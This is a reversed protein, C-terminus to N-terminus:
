SRPARQKEFFEQFSSAVSCAQLGLALGLVGPRPAGLRCPSWTLRQEVPLIETFFPKRNATSNHEVKYIIDIYIYIYVIPYIGLSGRFFGGSGM